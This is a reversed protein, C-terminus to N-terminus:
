YYVLIMYVKHFVQYWALHIIIYTPYLCTIQNALPRANYCLAICQAHNEQLKQKQFSSSMKPSARFIYDYNWCLFVSFRSASFRPNRCTHSFSSYKNLVLVVHRSKTPDKIESISWFIPWYSQDNNENKFDENEIKEEIIIKGM